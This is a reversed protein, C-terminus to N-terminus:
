NGQQIREYIETSLQQAEAIQSPTMLQEVASRMENAFENEVADSAAAINWWAYATVYNRPVGNGNRYMAALVVQAAVLGQDAALRWWKVAEAYDQPVGQGARYMDGLSLQSMADGQDAALRWWRMAEAYDQPVVVGNAYWYGLTGQAYADGAEALRQTDELGQGVAMVPTLFFGLLLCQGFLRLNSPASQKTRM